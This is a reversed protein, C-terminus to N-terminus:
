RAVQVDAPLGGVADDHGDAVSFERDFAYLKVGLRNKGFFSLGQELIKKLIVSRLAWRLSNSLRLSISSRHDLVATQDRVESRRGRVTQGRIEVASRQRGHLKEAELSFAKAPFRMRLRKGIYRILVNFVFDSVCDNDEDM